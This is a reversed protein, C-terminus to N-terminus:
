SLNRHRTLVKAVTERIEPVEPMNEVHWRIFPIGADRLAKEKTADEKNRGVHSRDDLEIALLVSGDNNCFVFDLSKQGIKGHWKWDNKPGQVVQNMSVQSFLIKHPLAKRLEEFFILETPSMVPTKEYPWKPSNILYDLGSEEKNEEKSECQPVIANPEKTKILVSKDFKTKIWVTVITTTLMVAILM